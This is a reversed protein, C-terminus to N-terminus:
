GSPREHAELEDHRHLSERAVFVILLVSVVHLPAFAWFAAGPSYATAILAAIPPSLVAGVEGFARRMAQLQGRVHLPVIDYTYITMAGLALGNALGIIVAVIAIGVVDHALPLAIFGVASFAAAPAAAWKRGLKDSIFGTPVIMLFTTLGLVSFLLGTTTASYSLQEQTYLPLMSNTVQSRTMQAFTSFFLIAYTARFLPHIQGISRLSFIPASRESRRTGSDRYALSIAVVVASTAAYIWFLGRIGLTDALLGGIAPGIVLGTSGIGMLASMQRGRQDKRVMDFAAIERGFTWAGIGAGWLFQTLLVVAFHPALAAGVASGTALVAGTLMLPKAGMRDVLAGAPILALGRGLLQSTLAQVALAGSVGFEQGLAPLAPIIMGQGLSMLMSPFYIHLAAQRLKGGGLGM